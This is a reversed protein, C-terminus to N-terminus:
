WTMRLKAHCVSVQAWLSWSWGGYLGCHFLNNDSRVQPFCVLKFPYNDDHRCVQRKRSDLDITEDVSSSDMNFLNCDSRKASARPSIGLLCIPRHFFNWDGFSFYHRLSFLNETRQLCIVPHRSNCSTSWGVIEGDSLVFVILVCGVTVLLAGLWDCRRDTETSPIDPDISLVGLVLSFAGLGSAFYFNARWTQRHLSRKLPYLLITCPGCVQIGRDLCRRYRSWSRSWHPCRRCFCFLRAIENAIPSICQGLYWGTNCVVHLDICSVDQPFSRVASPITAAV